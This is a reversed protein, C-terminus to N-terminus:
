KVKEIKRFNLGNSATSTTVKYQPQSTQTAATSDAQVVGPTTKKRKFRRKELIKAVYEQLEINCIIQMYQGNILRSFEEGSIKQIVFNGIMEGAITLKLPEGSQAAEKLEKYKDGPNCWYRHWQIKLPLMRLETGFFQLSGPAQITDQKAWIYSNEETHGLWSSVEFEISGLTAYATAM